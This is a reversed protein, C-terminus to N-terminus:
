QEFLFINRLYASGVAAELWMTPENIATTRNLVRPSQAPTGAASRTGVVVGFRVMRLQTANAGAPFVDSAITGLWEDTTTGAETLRGDAPAGDYGLAAQLDYVRPAIVSRETADYLNNHSTDEYRVLDRTGSTVTSADVQFVFVRGATLQAPTGPAIAATIPVNPM